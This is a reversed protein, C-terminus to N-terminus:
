HKFHRMGTMVMVIGAEDCAKISDEDKVSGGPQIIAKIGYNKALAIIDAFPFFGDSALYAGKANMGAQELANKAASVRNTQGGNTGITTFDKTIAIANSKLHKVVKFGFELQKLDEKNAKLKTVCVLSNKDFLDSDRKQVLMSGHLIKIDCLTQKGGDLESLKLVRLNPKTKLVELANKDYDPAIIVELFTKVMEKACKENVTKNFAIIGGFISVPDADHAYKFAEFSDKGLAVGCPTAHKVAVCACEDFELVTDIAGQADNLNNFSLEKGNLIQAKSLSLKLNPITEEYYAASQHPNEGYRLDQKKEFALTLFDPSKIGIEKSLYNAIITDYSATHQYTKFMLMKRYEIDVNGKQQKELIIGYDNPDCVVIVDLFNKAASRLMCPGGIDINEVADLFTTGEKEITARFPYLNVCVIDITNVELDELQKMHDKNGRVALIGAHVKPNLTKVRGDLCEPFKTIDSVSLVSIGNEKLIKATGGTSIIEYGLKELGKAFEVIGSKDSVSLLVRKKM